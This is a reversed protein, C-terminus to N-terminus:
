LYRDRGGVPTGAIRTVSSARADDAKADKGAREEPADLFGSVALASLTALVSIKGSRIMARVRTADFARVSSIGEDRQPVARRGKPVVGRAIVFRHPFTGMGPALEFVTPLLEGRGKAVLACEEEMERLGATLADEGQDIAGGPVEWSVTGTPVRSMQRALYARRARPPDGGGRSPPVDDLWVSSGM